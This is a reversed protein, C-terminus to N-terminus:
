KEEMHGRKLSDAAEAVVYGIPLDVVEADM